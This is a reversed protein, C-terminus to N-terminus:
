FLYPLVSGIKLRELQEVCYVWVIVFILLWRLGGSPLFDLERNRRYAFFGNATRDDAESQSSSQTAAENTAPRDSMLFCRTIRQLRGSFRLSHNAASQSWQWTANLSENPGRNKTERIVLFGSKDPGASTFVKIQTLFTTLEILGDRQAM